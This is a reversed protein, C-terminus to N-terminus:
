IRCESGVRGIHVGLCAPSIERIQLPAWADGGAYVTFPLQGQAWRVVYLEAGEAGGGLGPGDDGAGRIPQALFVREREGFGPVAREQDRARGAFEVGDGLLDLLFEVRGGAGKGDVKGAVAVVIVGAQLIHDGSQIDGDQDVVDADRVADGDGEGLGGLGLHVRDDHHVAHGGQADRPEDRRAHHVALAPQDERHARKASEDGGRQQGRVRAALGEQLLPARRQARLQRLVVDRHPQHLRVHDGRRHALDPHRGHEHGRGPRIHPAHQRTDPPRPARLPEHIAGRRPPAMRPHLIHRVREHPRMIPDQQPIVDPQMLPDPPPRQLLPRLPLLPLSFTTAYPLIHHTSLSHLSLYITYLSLVLHM